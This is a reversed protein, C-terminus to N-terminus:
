TEGMMEGQCKWCPLFQHLHPKKLATGMGAISDSVGSLHLTAMEWLSPMFLISRQRKQTGM